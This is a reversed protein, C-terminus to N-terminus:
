VVMSYVNPLANRFSLHLPATTRGQGPMGLTTPDLGSAPPLEKLIALFPSLKLSTINSTVHFHSTDIKKREKEIHKEHKNFYLCFNRLFTVLVIM